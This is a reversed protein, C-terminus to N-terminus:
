FPIEPDRYGILECNIGILLDSNEVIISHEDSYSVIKSLYWHKDDHNYILAIDGKKINSKDYYYNTIGDVVAYNEYCVITGLETNKYKKLVATKYIVEKYLDEPIFYVYSDPCHYCEERFRPHETFIQYEPWEVCIYKVM